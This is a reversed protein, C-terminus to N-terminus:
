VAKRDHMWAPLPKAGQDGEKAKIKARLQKLEEVAQLYGAKNVGLVRGMPDKRGEISMLLLKEDRKLRDLEPDLAEKIRVKLWESFKM